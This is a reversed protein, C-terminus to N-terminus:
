GPPEARWSVNPQDAELPCSRTTLLLGIELLCVNLLSHFPNAPLQRLRSMVLDRSAYETQSALLATGRQAFTLPYVQAFTLSTQASAFAFFGARLSETLSFTNPFWGVGMGMVLCSGPFWGVKGSIPSTSPVCRTQTPCVPWLLRHPLLWGPFAPFGRAPRLALPM